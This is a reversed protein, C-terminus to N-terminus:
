LLPFYNLGKEIHEFSFDQLEKVNKELPIPELNQAM